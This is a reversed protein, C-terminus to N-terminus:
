APNFRIWDVELGFEGATGDYKMMGLIDDLAGWSWLKPLDGTMASSKKLDAFDLTVESWEPDVNFNAKWYPMWWQEHTEMTLTFTDAAGTTTRCRFTMSGFGSLDRLGWPSRVSSFGGNNELSVTGEWTMTNRGYDVVGISRGGMVGDNLARWGTAEGKGFDLTLPETPADSPTSCAGTILAAGLLSRLFAM